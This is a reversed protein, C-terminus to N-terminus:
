VIFIVLVLIIFFIGYISFRKVSTNLLQFFKFVLLILAITLFISLVLQLSSPSPLVAIKLLLLLMVLLIIKISFEHKSGKTLFKNGTKFIEVFELEEKIFFSWIM